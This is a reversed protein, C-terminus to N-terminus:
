KVSDEKRVRDMFDIEKAMVDCTGDEQNCQLCAQASGLQRGWAPALAVEGSVQAPGGSLGIDLWKENLEKVSWEELELRGGSKTRDV